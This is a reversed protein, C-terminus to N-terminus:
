KYGKKYILLFQLPTKQGVTSGEFFFSWPVASSSTIPEQTEATPKTLNAVKDVVGKSTALDLNASPM